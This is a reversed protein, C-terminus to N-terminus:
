GCYTSISFLDTNRLVSQVTQQTTFLEIWQKVLREITLYVEDPRCEGPAVPPALATLLYLIDM